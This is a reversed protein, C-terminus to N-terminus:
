VISFLLNHFFVADKVQMLQLVLEADRAEAEQTSSIVEVIVVAVLGLAAVIAFITIITETNM